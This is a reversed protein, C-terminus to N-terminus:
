PLLSPDSLLNRATDTTPSTTPGGEPGSLFLGRFCKRCGTRLFDQKEGSGLHRREELPSFRPRAMGENEDQSGPLELGFALCSHWRKTPKPDIHM